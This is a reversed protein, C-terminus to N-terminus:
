KLVYSVHITEFKIGVLKYLFSFFVRSSSYLSSSAYTKKLRKVKFCSSNPLVALGDDRYLGVMELGFINKLRDLFFLGVLECLEPGMFSGQAVDFLCSTNNVRKM